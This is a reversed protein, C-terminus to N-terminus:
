KSMKLFTWLKYNLAPKHHSHLIVKPLVTKFVLGGGWHRFSFVNRIRSIKQLSLFIFSFKYVIKM